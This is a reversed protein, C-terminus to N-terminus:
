RICTLEVKLFIFSLDTSIRKGVTFSYPIFSANEVKEVREKYSREKSVEAKQIAEKPSYKKHSDAQVIIVKINFHTNQFNMDFRMIRIDTRAAEAVNAGPSLTQDEVPKLKTETKTGNYVM